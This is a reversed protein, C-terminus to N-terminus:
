PSSVSPKPIAVLCIPFILAEIVSWLLLLLPNISLFFFFLCRYYGMKVITLVGFSLDKLLRREPVAVEPRAEENAKVGACLISNTSGVATNSLDLSFFSSSFYKPPPANEIMLFYYFFFYFLCSYFGGKIFKLKIFNSNKFPYCRHHLM